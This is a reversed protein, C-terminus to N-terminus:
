LLVATCDTSCQTTHHPLIYKKASFNLSFNLERSESHYLLKVEISRYLIYL